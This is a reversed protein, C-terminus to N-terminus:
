QNEFTLMTLFNLKLVRIFTVCSVFSIFVLTIPRGGNSLPPKWHLVASNKRIDTVELPGTPSSPVGSFMSFYLMYKVADAKGKGNQISM